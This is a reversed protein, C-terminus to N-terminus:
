KSAPKATTNRTRKPVVKFIIKNNQEDHFISASKGGFRAAGTIQRKIVKADDGDELTVAHTGGQTIFSDFPNDARTRGGGTRKPLEGKHVAVKMPTGKQNTQTAQTRTEGKLVAILKGDEVFVRVKIARKRAVNYLRQKANTLEREDSPADITVVGDAQLTDGLQDALKRDRKGAVLERVIPEPPKIERGEHCDCTCLRVRNIQAERTITGDARVVASLDPQRLAGPCNDHFGDRCHGFVFPESM